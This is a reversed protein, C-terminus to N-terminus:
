KKKTIIIPQSNQATTFYISNVELLKLDKEEITRFDKYFALWGTVTLETKGNVTITEFKPEIFLDANNEKLLERIIENKADELKEISKLKVTKTIKQQNVELDAVVPKHIVGAGVIDRSKATGSKITTCSTITSIILLLSFVKTKMIKFNLNINGLGLGM